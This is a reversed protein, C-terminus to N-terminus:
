NYTRQMGVPVEAWNILHGRYMLLRLEVKYTETIYSIVPEKLMRMEGTIPDVWPVDSMTAVTERVRQKGTRNYVWVESKGDGAEMPRVATPQGLLEKIQQRRLGLQLPIGEPPPPPPTDVVLVRPRKAVPIMDSSTQPTSASSAPTTPAATAGLALVLAASM